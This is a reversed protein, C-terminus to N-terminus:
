DKFDEKIEKFDEKIEKFIKWAIWVALPTAALMLLGWYALIITIIIIITDM